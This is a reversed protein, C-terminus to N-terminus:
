RTARKIKALLEVQAERGKLVYQSHLSHATKNMLVRASAAGIEAKLRNTYIWAAWVDTDAVRALVGLAAIQRDIQEPVPAADPQELIQQISPLHKRLDRIALYQAAAQAGVAGALLAFGVELGQLDDASRVGATMDLGLAAYASLGIEWARPSAWPEAADVAAPPPRMVFLSPDHSVTAAFDAMELRVQDTYAKESLVNPVARVAQGNFFATLEAFSPEYRLLILRNIM